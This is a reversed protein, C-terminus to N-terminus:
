ANERDVGDGERGGLNVEAADEVLCGGAEHEGHLIVRQQGLLKAEYPKGFLDSDACIVASPRNQWQFLVSQLDLIPWRLCM